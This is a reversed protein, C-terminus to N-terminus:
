ASAASTSRTALGRQPNPFTFRGNRSMVTWEDMRDSGSIVACLPSGDERLNENRLLLSTYYDMGDVPQGEHM